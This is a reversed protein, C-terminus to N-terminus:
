RSARLPRARTGVLYSVFEEALELLGSLELFAVEPEIM